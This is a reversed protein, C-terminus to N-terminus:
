VTNYIISKHVKNVFVQIKIANFYLSYIVRYGFASSNM